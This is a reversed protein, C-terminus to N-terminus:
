SFKPATPSRRSTAKARVGADARSPRRQKIADGTESSTRARRVGTTRRAPSSPRGRTARLVGLTRRRARSPSPHITRTWPVRTMRTAASPASPRRRGARRRCGASTGSERVLRGAPHARPETAPRPNARGRPGARHRRHYRRLSPARRSRCRHPDPGLVLPNAIDFRLHTACGLTSREKEEGGDTQRRSFFCAGRVVRATRDERAARVVSVCVGSGRSPVTRTVM